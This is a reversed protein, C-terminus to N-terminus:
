RIVFSIEALSIGRPILNSRHTNSNPLSHEALSGGAVDDRRTPPHMAPRPIPQRM